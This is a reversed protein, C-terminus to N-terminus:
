NVENELINLAEEKHRECLEIRKFIMIPEENLLHEMTMKGKCIPCTIVSNYNM